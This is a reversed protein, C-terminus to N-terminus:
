FMLDHWIWCIRIFYVFIYSPFDARTQPRDAWAIFIIWCHFHGILWASQGRSHGKITSFNWSCWFESTVNRSMMLIVDFALVTRRWMMPQTDNMTKNRRLIGTQIRTSKVSNVCHLDCRIRAWVLIKFYKIMFIRIKLLTQDKDRPNCEYLGRSESWGSPSSM